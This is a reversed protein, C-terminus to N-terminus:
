NERRKCRRERSRLRRREHSRLRRRHRAIHRAIHCVAPRMVVVVLTLLLCSPILHFSHVSTQFLTALHVHLQVLFYTAHHETAKTPTRTATLNYTLCRAVRSHTICFDDDTDARARHDSLLADTVPFSPLFFSLVGGETSHLPCSVPLRVLSHMKMLHQCRSSYAKNGQL